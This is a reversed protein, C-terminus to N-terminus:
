PSALGDTKPLRGLRDVAPDLRLRRAQALTEPWLPRTTSARRIARALVVSEAIMLCTRHDLLAMTALYVRPSEAPSAARHSSNRARAPASQNEHKMIACSRTEYGGRSKLVATTLGTM